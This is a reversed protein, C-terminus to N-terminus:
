GMAPTPAIGEYAGTPPVTLARLSAVGANAFQVTVPVFASPEAKFAYSNIFNTGDYGFSKSGRAPIVESGPTIAAPTGDITVAIIADDAAASNFITGILTASGSGEPGLVLTADEIRIDGVSQQVGNGSNSQSM